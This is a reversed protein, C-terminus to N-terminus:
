DANARRQIALRLTLGIIILALGLTFFAFTNFGTAPLAQERIVVPAACGTNIRIGHRFGSLDVGQGFILPPQGQWVDIQGCSPVSVQPGTEILTQPLTGYISTNATSGPKFSYAALVKGNCTDGAMTAIENSVQITCSMILREQPTPCTRSLEREKGTSTLKVSRLERLHDSATQANLGLSELHGQVVVM